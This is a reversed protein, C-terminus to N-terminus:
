GHVDSPTTPYVCGYRAHQLLDLTEYIGEHLNAKFEFGAKAFKDNAVHYSLQNMIKADVYDVKLDPIRSKIADLIQAVTANISLVNYIQGDFLKKAIIFNLASVAENLDLYPRVQHLATKWVTVPTGTIAQFCFKNVATHFRMGISAGYITGFRCTIFKLKNEKGMKKLLDEERLKTEAYPSQPKLEELTCNEDVRAEQTGYVSTTSLYILPVSLKSCADAVNRTANFNMTEVINKNDFSAAANTIAALHIVVDAGKCYASMDQNSVDVEHFSYKAGTPLNFLSVYRQASFNDLMVVEAGPYVSPISRIFKSGIHGLAGTVVIKM